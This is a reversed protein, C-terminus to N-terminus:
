SYELFLPINGFVSPNFRIYAVWRGNGFPRGMQGSLTMPFPPKYYGLEALSFMSAVDDPLCTCQKHFEVQKYVISFPLLHNNTLLYDDGHVHVDATTM